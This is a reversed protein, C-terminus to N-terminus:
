LLGLPYLVHEDHYDAEDLLRTNQVITSMSSACALLVHM